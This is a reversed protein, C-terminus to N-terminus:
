AGRQSGTSHRVQLVRTGGFLVHVKSAGGKLDLVQVRVSVDMLDALNPESAPPGVHGCWGRCVLLLDM